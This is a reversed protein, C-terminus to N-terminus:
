LKKNLHNHKTLLEKIEMITRYSSEGQEYEYVVHRLMEVLEANQEQLEQAQSQAYRQAVETMHSPIQFGHINNLFESWNEFGREKAYYEKINDISM